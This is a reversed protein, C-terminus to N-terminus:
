FRLTSEPKVLIQTPLAVWESSFPKKTETGLWSKYIDDNSKKAMKGLNDLFPKYQIHHGNNSQSSVYTLVRDETEFQSNTPTGVRDLLENDILEIEFDNDTTDPGMGITIKTPAFMGNQMRFDKGLRSHSVTVTFSSEKGLLVACISIKQCFLWNEDVNVAVGVNSRLMELSFRLKDYDIRLVHMAWIVISKHVFKPEMQTICQSAVGDEASKNLCEFFDLLFNLANIDVSVNTTTKNDVQAKRLLSSVTFIPHSLSLTVREGRVYFTSYHKSAINGMTQPLEELRRLWTQYRRWPQDPM